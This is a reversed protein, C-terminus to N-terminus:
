EILQTKSVWSKKIHLVLAINKLKHKKELKPQILMTIAKLVVRDKVEPIKLPRYTNKDKKPLAVGRLPSFKYTNDRLSKRITRLNNSLNKAFSEITEESIGRSKKNHKNLAIWANEIFSKRSLLDILKTM